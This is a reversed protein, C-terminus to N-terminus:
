IGIKKYSYLLMGILLGCGLTWHVGHGLITALIMLMAMHWRKM